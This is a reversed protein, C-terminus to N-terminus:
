ELRWVRTGSIGKEECARVTFRRGTLKKANRIKAGLNARKDPAFFSQGVELTLIVMLEESRAGRGRGATPIQINNDIQIAM